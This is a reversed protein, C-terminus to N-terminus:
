LWNGDTSSAARVCKYSLRGIMKKRVHHILQKKATHPLKSPRHYSACTTTTYAPLPPILFFFLHISLWVAPSSIVKVSHVKELSSQTDTHLSLAHVPHWIIQCTITESNVTQRQEQPRTWWPLIIKCWIFVYHAFVSNLGLHIFTPGGAIQVIKRVRQTKVCVISKADGLLKFLYGTTNQLLSQMVVGSETNNM